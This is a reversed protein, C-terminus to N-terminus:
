TSRRDPRPGFKFPLNSNAWEEVENRDWLRKQRLAAAPEPFDPRIVYRWATRRAVQLLDAIEPVGVLDLRAV